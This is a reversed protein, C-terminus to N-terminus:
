DELGRIRDVATTLGGGCVQIGFVSNNVKRWEKGKLDAGQTTELGKWTVACGLCRSDANDRRWEKSKREEQQLNDPQTNLGTTDRNIIVILSNKDLGLGTQRQTNDPWRKVMIVEPRPDELKVHWAYHHHHWRHSSHSWPPGLSNQPPASAQSCCSAKLTSTELFWRQSSISLCLPLDCIARQWIKLEWPVRCFFILGRNIIMDQGGFNATYSSGRHTYPVQIEQGQNRPITSERIKRGM